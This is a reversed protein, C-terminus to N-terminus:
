RADAAAWRPDALAAELPSGILRARRESESLQGAFQALDRRMESTWVPYGGLKEICQRLRGASAIDRSMQLSLRENIDETGGGLCMAYRGLEVQLRLKAAKVQSDLSHAQRIEARAALAAAQKQAEM